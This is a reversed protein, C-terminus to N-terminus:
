KSARLWDEILPKNRTKFADTLQNGIVERDKVKLGLYLSVADVIVAEEERTMTSPRKYRALENAITEHLVVVDLGSAKKSQGDITHNRWASSLIQESFNYIIEFVEEKIDSLTPQVWKYPKKKPKFKLRQKM